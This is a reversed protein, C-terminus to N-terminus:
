HGQGSECTVHYLFLKLSSNITSFKVRSFIKSNSHLSFTAINSNSNNMLAIVVSRLGLDLLVFSYKM